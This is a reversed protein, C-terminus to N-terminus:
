EVEETTTKSQKKEERKRARETAALEKKREKIREGDLDNLSIGARELEKMVSPFDRVDIWQAWRPHCPWVYLAQTVVGRAQVPLLEENTISLDTRGKEGFTAPQTKM